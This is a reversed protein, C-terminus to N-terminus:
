NNPSGAAMWDKLAKIETPTVTTAKDRPMSGSEIRNIMAQIKSSVVAHDATNGTADTAFPAFDAQGAPNHCRACHLKVIPTITSKFSVAQVSPSASASPAPTPTALSTPTTRKKLTDIVPCNVLMPAKEKKFGAAETLDSVLKLSRFEYNDPVVTATVLWLSSYTGTEPYQMTSITSGAPNNSQPLVTIINNLDIGNGPGRDQNLPPIDALALSKDYNKIPQTTIKPNGEALNGPNTDKTIFAWIPATQVIPLGNEITIPLYDFTFYYARKGNVWNFQAVADEAGELKTGEAVVPCNFALKTDELWFGPNKLAENVERFSRISNPIYNKPVHLNFVRWYPSYGLDGPVVSLVTQGIQQGSEDVMRYLPAPQHLTLEERSPKLEAEFTWYRVAESTGDGKDYFSNNIRITGKPLNTEDIKPLSAENGVIAGSFAPVQIASAAPAPTTATTPPPGNDAPAIAPKPKSNAIKESKAPPNAVPRRTAGPKPSTTLSPQEPIVCGASIAVLALVIGQKINM